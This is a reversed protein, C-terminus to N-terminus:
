NVQKGKGGYGRTVVIGHKSETIIVGKSVDHLHFVIQREIVSMENLVIGELDTHQQMNYLKKRKAHTYFVKHYQLHNPVLYLLHSCLVTFSKSITLKIHHSNWRMSFLSDIKTFSLFLGWLMAFSSPTLKLVYLNYRSLYSKFYLTFAKSDTSGLNLAQSQWM